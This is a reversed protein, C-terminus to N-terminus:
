EQERFYRAAGPHLPVPTASAEEVNMRQLPTDLLSLRPLAQFFAKTFRYVIETDVGERCILLRDTGVTLVPTSGYMGRPVVITRLFPHEARIREVTHKPLSVVRIGDSVARQLPELPFSGVAFIADLTRRELRQVADAFPEYSAAVNMHLGDLFIQSTVATVSGELGLSVRRGSLDDVDAIPADDRVILYIPNANLVAVGRIRDLAPHGLQGVFALYTIDAYTFAFDATGDHVAAVLEAGREIEKVRVTTGPLAAAIVRILEAGIRGSQLPHMAVTIPRPAPPAPPSACSAALLAILLGAWAHRRM